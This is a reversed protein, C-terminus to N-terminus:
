ILAPIEEALAASSAIRSEIGIFCGGAVDVGDLVIPLSTVGEQRMSNSTSPDQSVLARDHTGFLPAPPDVERRCRWPGPHPRLTNLAKRVKPM